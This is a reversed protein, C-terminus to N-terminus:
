ISIPVLIYIGSLMLLILTIILGSRISLPNLIVLLWLSAVEVITAGFVKLIHITLHFLSFDPHIVNM